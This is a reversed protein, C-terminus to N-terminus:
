DGAIDRAMGYVAQAAQLTDFEGGISDPMDVDQYHDQDEDIEEISIWIKYIM